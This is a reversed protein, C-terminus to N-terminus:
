TCKSHKYKLRLITDWSLEGHRRKLGTGSPFEFSAKVTDFMADYEQFTATDKWTGEPLAEQVALMIKRFRKFQDSAKKDGMETPLTYRWLRHYTSGDGSTWYQWAKRLTMNPVMFDRPLSALPRLGFDALTHQQAHPEETSPLARTGQCLLQPIDQIGSAELVKMITRELNSTTIPAGEIRGVEAAEDLAAQIVAPLRGIQEEVGPILKHVEGRVQALTHLSCHPLM